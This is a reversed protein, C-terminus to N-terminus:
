PTLAGGNGFADRVDFSKAAGLEIAGTGDNNPTVTVTKTTDDPLTAIVTWPGPLTIEVDSDRERLARMGPANGLLARLTYGTSTKSAASSPSLPAAIVEFGESRLEYPVDGSASHATGKVHFVYRGVPLSYPATPAAISYPKSPVAQWTAGYVHHTPADAKLPDPAYTLVVSGERLDGVVESTTEREITVMPTDVVPDGGYWAFRAVGVARRIPTTMAGEVVDPWWMPNLPAPTGHDTTVAAAIKTTPPYPFDIFRSSGAEPDEYAPTWAIKAADLIGDIIVEGEIPGWINTSPEYGGALWDEATLLYGAYEDAYGVVLTREPGAPSRARLYATWPATPEGPAGVILYDGSPTGSFRVVTTTARMTDCIPAVMSKGDVSFFSFIINKGRTIDVCSEYPGVGRTGPIPSLSGGAIKGCLGAGSPTNFEDIPTIIKGGKFMEGDRV